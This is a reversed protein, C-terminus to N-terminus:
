TSTLCCVIKYTIIHRCHKFLYRINDARDSNTCTKLMIHLWYKKKKEKQLITNTYISIIQHYFSCFQLAEKKAKKTKLITEIICFTHQMVKKLLNIFSTDNNHKKTWSADSKHIKLNQKFTQSCETYFYAFICVTFPPSVCWQIMKFGKPRYDKHQAYKQRYYILSVNGVTCLM